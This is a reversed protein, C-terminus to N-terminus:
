LMPHGIIFKFIILKSGRFSKITPRNVCTDIVFLAEFFAYFFYGQTDVTGLM